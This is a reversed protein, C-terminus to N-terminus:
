RSISHLVTFPEEDTWRHCVMFFEENNWKRTEEDTFFGELNKEKKEENGKRKM